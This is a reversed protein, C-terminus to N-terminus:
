PQPQTQRLVRSSHGSEHGEQERTLLPGTGGQKPPPTPTIWSFNLQFYYLSTIHEPYGAFLGVTGVPFQRHLG